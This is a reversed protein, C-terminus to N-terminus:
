SVVVFGGSPGTGASFTLAYWTWEREEEESGVLFVYETQPDEAIVSAIRRYNTCVHQELVERRREHLAPPLVSRNDWTYTIGVKLPCRVSMLKRIEHRFDTDFNEHEVAVLMPFPLDYDLQADERYFAGDLKLPEREWYELSLLSATAELVSPGRCTKPRNSKWMMFWNWFVNLNQEWLECWEDREYAHRLESYSTAFASIFEAASPRTPMRAIM